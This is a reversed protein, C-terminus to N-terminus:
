RNTEQAPLGAIRSLRSLQEFQIAFTLWQNTVRRTLKQFSEYTFASYLSVNPIQEAEAEDDVDDPFHMSLGRSSNTDLVVPRGLHDRHVIVFFPQYGNNEVDRNSATGREKGISRCVWAVSGHANRALKLAAAASAQEVNAQYSPWSAYAHCDFESLLAVADQVLYRTAIVYRNFTQQVDRFRVVSGQTRKELQVVLDRVIEDKPALDYALYEEAFKWGTPVVVPEPLPVPAVTGAAPKRVLLTVPKSRVNNFSDSKAAAAAVSRWHFRLGLDSLGICDQVCAQIRDSEVHRASHSFALSSPLSWVALLLATTLGFHISKM